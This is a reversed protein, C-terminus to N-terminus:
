VPLTSEDSAEWEDEPLSIAAATWVGELPHYVADITQLCASIAARDCSRGLRAEVRDLIDTIKLPSPSVEMVM